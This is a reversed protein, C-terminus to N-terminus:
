DFELGSEFTNFTKSGIKKGENDEIQKILKKEAEIMNDMIKPLKEIAAMIKQSASIKDESENILNKSDKFVENVASVAMMAGDYLNQIITKSRNLYFEIAENLLKDVKWDKPLEIDKKIESIRDNSDIICMYPSTIDAYFWVFALEKLAISKDKSKDRTMIKKFPAIMMSEETVHVNYSNKDFQFLKM